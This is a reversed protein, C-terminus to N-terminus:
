RRKNKGARGGKGGKRARKAAAALGRLWKADEERLGWQMQARAVVEDMAEDSGLPAGQEAMWRLVPVGCGTSLGWEVTDLKGWPVGLRRLLEMTGRDGNSGAVIYPWTGDLGAALGGPLQGDLWELMVECGGQVAAALDMGDLRYEPRLQWLFRVLALDGLAMAAQLMKGAEWIKSGAGVLLQVVERLKGSGGPVKLGFAAVPRDLPVLPVGAASVRAEQALWRVMDLHGRLIAATYAKPTAMYGAERLYRALPISGSWAATEMAEGLKRNGDEKPKGRGGRGAGGGRGRGTRDDRGPPPYARPQGIPGGLSHVYRVVELQGAYLAQDYLHYLVKSGGGGYALPMGQERLWAVTQLMNSSGSAADILRCWEGAADGQDVGLGCGAEDVLWQVVALDGHRLAGWLVPSVGGDGMPCGRERLWRLRGLDGSSAAAEAVDEELECEEGGTALMWQMKAEADPTVSDAAAELAFRDLVLKWTALFGRYPVGQLVEWVTKLGALDCHRAAARLVHGPRLMAPCRAALWSLLHPHGATAAATGPDPFLGQEGLACDRRQLLELFISPQLLAWAM